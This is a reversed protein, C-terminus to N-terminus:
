EEAGFGWSGASEYKRWIFLILVSNNDEATFNWAAFKM